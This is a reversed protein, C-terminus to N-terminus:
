LFFQSLHSNIFIKKKGLSKRRIVGYDLRKAFSQREKSYVKESVERNTWNWSTKEFWNWKRRMIMPEEEIEDISTKWTKSMNAACIFLQNQFNTTQSIQSSNWINNLM